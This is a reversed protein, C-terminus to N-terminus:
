RKPCREDAKTACYFDGAAAEIPYLLIDAIVALPLSGWVLYGWFLRHERADLESLKKAKGNGLWFLDTGLSAFREKQNDELTQLQNYSMEVIPISAGDMEVPSSKITVLPPEKTRLDNTEWVAWRPERHDIMDNGPVRLNASYKLVVREDTKTAALFESVSEKRIGADLTSRTLTYTLPTPCGTMFFMAIIVAFLTLRNRM